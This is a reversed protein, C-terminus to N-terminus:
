IRLKPWEQGENVLTGVVREAVCGGRGSGEGVRPGAAGKRAGRCIRIGVIEVEESEDSSAGEGHGERQRASENLSVVGNRSETHLM